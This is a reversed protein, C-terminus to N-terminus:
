SKLAIIEFHYPDNDKARGARKRAICAPRGAVPLARWAMECIRSRFKISLFSIGAM